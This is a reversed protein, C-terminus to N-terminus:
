RQIRIEPRQRHPQLAFFETVTLGTNFDGFLAYFQKREIKLYLKSTSAADFTPQTADAYLTYYRTPDIAQNLNAPNASADGKHKASDYAMTLLYEGKISGKAYM